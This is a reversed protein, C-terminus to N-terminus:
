KLVAASTVLNQCRLVQGGATCVSEVRWRSDEMCDTLNGRESTQDTGVAKNSGASQLAATAPGLLETTDPSGEEVNKFPQASILSLGKKLVASTV